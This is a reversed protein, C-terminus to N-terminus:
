KPGAARSIDMHDFISVAHFRSNEIFLKGTDMGGCVVGALYMGKKNTEFTNSDYVPAEDPEGSIKVGAKKLFDFDPHYGTMAFVFENEITVIGDPTKIDVEKERIETVYSDFYAKISGEKIRNEIDPKVWYKVSDKIKSERIVM